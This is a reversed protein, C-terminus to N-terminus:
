PALAACLEAINLVSRGNFALETGDSALTLRGAQGFVIGDGPVHFGYEKGTDVMDESALDIHVPAPGNSVLTHWASGITHTLAGHVTQRIPTGAEDYFTTLKVTGTGTFVVDFPCPSDAGSFVFVDNVPVLEVTPARAAAGVPFAAAVLAAAVVFGLPRM